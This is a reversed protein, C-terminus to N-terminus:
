DREMGLEDLKRYLTSRGINLDRAVQCLNGRHHSMALCIVDAEIQRLSRVHGDASCFSVSPMEPSDHAM